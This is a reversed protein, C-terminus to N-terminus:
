NTLLNIQRIKSPVLGPSSIIIANITILKLAINVRVKDDEM